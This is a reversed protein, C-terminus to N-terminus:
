YYLFSVTRKLMTNLSDFNGWWSYDYMDSGRLEKLINHKEVHQMVTNMNLKFIYPNRERFEKLSKLENEQPESEATVHIGPLVRRPTLIILISRHFDQTTKNSFLYQVIPIDMLLPVGSKSESTEKERLGSLVLTQGFKMIVNATIENKSTALSEKFNGGQAELDVFARNALLSLLISGDPQFTPTVNLTVGTEIKELSGLEKGTIAVNLV